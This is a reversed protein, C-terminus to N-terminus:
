IFLYTLYQFDPSISPQSVSTLIMGRCKAKSLQTLAGNLETILELSLSNVPPRNLSVTAIGSKENVEVNVLKTATAYNRLKILKNEVKLVNKILNAM